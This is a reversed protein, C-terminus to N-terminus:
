SMLNWQLYTKHRFNQAITTAACCTLSILIVFAEFCYFFCKTMNKPWRNEQGRILNTLFLVFIRKKLSERTNIHHVACLAASRELMNKSKYIKLGRGLNEKTSFFCGQTSCRKLNGNLQPECCISIWVNELIFLCKVVATQLSSVDLLM